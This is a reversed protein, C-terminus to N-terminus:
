AGEELGTMIYFTGIGKKTVKIQEKEQLTEIHQKLQRSNMKNAVRRLLTSHDTAGGLRRMMQLVYDSDQAVAVKELARAAGPIRKGAYKVFEWALEMCEQCVDGFGCEVLHINMATRKLHTPHRETMEVEVDDDPLSARRTRYWRDFWADAAKNLKIEGEYLRLEKLKAVIKAQGAGVYPTPFCRETSNEVVVMFRNLFGSSSVESSSSDSLLSLTSGGFVTITPSIIEEVQRTQTRVRFDDPYDLLRLIMTTLGENYRQKGFFVSFEPAYVFQQSSETLATVLSEPTIKDEMIPCLAADKILKKAIDIAYTKKARGTPAILMVNYPPFIRFHGMAMWCRRQLATGVACLAGFLHFSLPSENYATFEAYTDLWGGKPLARRLQKEDSEIPVLKPLQGGQLSAFLQAESLSFAQRFAEMLRQKLKSDVSQPWRDIWELAKKFIPSDRDIKRGELARIM